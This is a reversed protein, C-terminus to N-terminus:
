GNIAKDIEIQKDTYEQLHVEEFEFYHEPEIVSEMQDVVDTADEDSYGYNMMLEHHWAELMGDAHDHGGLGLKDYVFRADMSVQDSLRDLNHDHIWLRQNNTTGEYKPPDGYTDDIYYVNWLQKKAM